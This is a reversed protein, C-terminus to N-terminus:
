ELIEERESFSSKEEAREWFGIFYETVM